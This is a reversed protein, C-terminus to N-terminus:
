QYYIIYKKQDFHTRPRVAHITTHALCMGKKGLGAKNGLSEDVKAALLIQLVIKRLIIAVIWAILAIVMAAFLKPLYSFIVTLLENLPQAVLTLGLAQFFAVLVFFLLVYYIIRSIWHHAELTKARQDGVVKGAIKEDLGTRHLARGILSSVIMAVLWGVILIALAGILKTSYPGLVQNIQDFFTM